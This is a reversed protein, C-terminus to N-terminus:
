FFSNGKKEEGAACCCCPAEPKQAAPAAPHAELAQRLRFIVQDIGFRYDELTEVWNQMCSLGDETIRFVRKERAAKSDPDIYSSVLGRKEMDRLVRYVGAADPPNNRWLATDAIKQLLDYGHDPGEALSFLLIPQIFRTLTSGHCACKANEDIM